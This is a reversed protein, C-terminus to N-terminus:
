RNFAPFSEPSVAGGVKPLVDLCADGFFAKSFLISFLFVSHESTEEKHYINTISRFSFIAMFLFVLKESLVLIGKNVPNRIGFLMARLLSFRFAAVSSKFLALSSILM